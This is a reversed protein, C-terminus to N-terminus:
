LFDQKRWRRPRSIFREKIGERLRIGPTDGVDVKEEEKRADRYINQVWIEWKRPLPELGRIEFIVGDEM